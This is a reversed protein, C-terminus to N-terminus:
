RIKSRKRKPPKEVAGNGNEQVIVTDLVEIKTVIDAEPVDVRVVTEEKKQPDVKVVRWHSTKLLRDVDDPHADVYKDNPNNGGRYQRSNKGFYTVAGVQKGIFEMRATKPTNDITEKNEPLLTSVSVAYDNGPMQSIFDITRRAELIAQGNKSCDGCKGMEKVGDFYAQYRERMKPYVEDKGIAASKDRQTGTNFRYVFGTIPLYKGFMGRVQMKLFLDWEEWGAITEDFGNVQNLDDKAVLITVSSQAKWEKPDFESRRDIVGSKGDANLKINDTYIYVAEGKIYEVIMRRLTSGPTLYDDADLFLIFKGHAHRIGTNRAGAPGRKGENNVVIAYPAGSIENWEDGTDNIVVAEWFPFDQSILSDLADIAYRKHGPGVPIIVSVLPNEGHYVNWCFGQNISPEGQASFPVVHANPFGKTETLLRRGDKPNGALRWPFDSCWDGDGGHNNNEEMSKSDSRMRYILTTPMVTSGNEKQEKVLKARFGFSTALCWFHADEARWMRERYGGTELRVERRVMSSSHIQNIHALQARFDYDTKNHWIADRKNLGDDSILDLDGSVISISSDNELEEVQIRLADPPLLNDADLNVIYKGTSNEFGFNLAGSLKLNTPTKFYKFRKDKLCYSSAIAQTNDISQDDVIICEWDKLTQKLVSQLADPLYRGLNHCTVVLSVIPRTSKSSNYVQTFLSAYKEIKDEWGWRSKVDDIANSSLREHDRICLRICEALGSWDGPTALYGTEGQSIIEHQGGYDWGAIPVGAAMAELTGIGFTERATALYVGAKQIVNKMKPAPVRGIISINSSVEGFTSVFDVDPMLKALEQMDDPNSILDERGKNWLVYGQTQKRHKWDDYDVGHYIVTPRRLIGRTIARRVWLSPVTIADAKVLAERVGANVEHAWIGWDYDAWMMGHCCSVFPIGKITAAGYAHGVILDAENADNSIDIGFKPLHKIQAEVVRRIGGEGKDPSNFQPSIFVKM